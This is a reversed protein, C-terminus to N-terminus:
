SVSPHPPVVRGGRGCVIWVHALADHLALAVRDAVDVLHAVLVAEPLDAPREGHRLEADVRDHQGGSVLGPAVVVVSLLLEVEAMPAPDLDLEPVARGMQELRAARRPHVRGGHAPDPVDAVM